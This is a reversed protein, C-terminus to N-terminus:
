RGARRALGAEAASATSGRQREASSSARRSRRRTEDYQRCWEDYHEQCDRRPPRLRSGADQNTTMSGTTARYRSEVDKQQLWANVAEQSRVARARAAELLREETLQRAGKRFAHALRAWLKEEVEHAVRGGAFGANIYVIPDDEFGEPQQGAAGFVCRLSAQSCRQSTQDAWQRSPSRRCTCAGLRGARGCAACDRAPPWARVRGGRQTAVRGAAPRRSCTRPRLCCSAESSARRYCSGVGGKRNCIDAAVM